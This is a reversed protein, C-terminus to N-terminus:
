ESMNLNGLDILYLEILVIKIKTFYFFLSAASVAALGRRM